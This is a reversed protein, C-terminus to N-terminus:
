IEIFLPSLVLNSKKTLITDNSINQIYFYYIQTSQIIKDFKQYKLYQLKYTNNKKIYKNMKM